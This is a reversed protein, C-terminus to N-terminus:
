YGVNGHYGRNFHISTFCIYLVSLVELAPVLVPYLSPTGEYPASMMQTAHIFTLLLHIMAVGISAQTRLVLAAGIVLFEIVCLMSYWEFASMGDPTLPWCVSLGVILALCMAGKDARNLAVALLAAAEM